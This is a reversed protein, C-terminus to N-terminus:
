IGEFCKVENIMKDMAEFITEEIGKEEFGKAEIITNRAEYNMEELDVSELCIAEPIWKSMAEFIREEIGMGMVGINGLIVKKGNTEIITDKPHQARGRPLRQGPHQAWKPLAWSQCCVSSRPPRGWCRWIEDQGKAENIMKKGLAENILEMGKTVIITMRGKAEFSTAEIDLLGLCVVENIM